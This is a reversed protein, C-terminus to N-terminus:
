KREAPAAPKPPDEPGKGTLQRRTLRAVEQGRRYRVKHGGVTVITATGGAEAAALVFREAIGYARCAEAILGADTTPAEASPGSAEAPNEKESKM